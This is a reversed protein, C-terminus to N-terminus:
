RLLNGGGCYFGDGSVLRLISKIEQDALIYPDIPNEPELCSSAKLDTHAQCAQSETKCCLQSSTMNGGLHAIRSITFGKM